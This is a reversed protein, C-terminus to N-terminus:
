DNKVEGDVEIVDAFRDMLDEDPTMRVAEDSPVNIVVFPRNNPNDYLYFNRWAMLFNMAHIAHKREQFEGIKDCFSSLVYGDSDDEGNFERWESKSYVKIPLHFQKYESGDQTRILIECKDNEM